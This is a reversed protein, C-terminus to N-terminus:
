EREKSRLVLIVEGGDEGELRMLKLTFGAYGPYNHPTGNARTFSIVDRAEREEVVTAPWSSGFQGLVVFGEDTQAQVLEGLGSYTEKGGCAVLVGLLVLSLYRAM